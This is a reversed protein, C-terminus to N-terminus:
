VAGRLWREGGEVGGKEGMAVKSVENKGEGEINERKTHPPNRAGGKTSTRTHTAEAKHTSRPTPNTIRWVFCTNTKSICIPPPTFHLNLHSKIDPKWHFM